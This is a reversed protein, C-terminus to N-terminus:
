LVQVGLHRMINPLKLEISLNHVQIEIKSASISDVDLVGRGECDTGVIGVLWM